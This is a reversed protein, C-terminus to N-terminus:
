EHENVLLDCSILHSEVIHLPVHALSSYNTIWLCQNGLQLVSDVVQVSNPITYHRSKWSIKNEDLLM